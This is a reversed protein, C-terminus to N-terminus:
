VPFAANILVLIEEYEGAEFQDPYNTYLFNLRILLWEKTKGMAIWTEFKALWSM